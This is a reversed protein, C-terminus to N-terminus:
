EVSIIYYYIPQGGNVISVEAGNPYKENLMAEIKQADEESVGEGYIITVLSTMDEDYLEDVADFAIKEKDEGVFKIAGNCLGM